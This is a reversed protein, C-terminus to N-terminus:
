LYLIVVAEIFILITIAGAARACRRRVREGGRRALGALALTAVAASALVGLSVLAFPKNGNIFLIALVAAAGLSGAWRGPAAGGSSWLEGAAAGALVAAPLAAPLWTTPELPLPAYGRLSTPAFNLAALALVFLAALSHAAGNRAGLYYAAAALGAVGAFGFGLPDWFLMAAADAGLRKVLMKTEPYVDPAAALAARVHAFPVGVRLYELAAAAVLVAAFGGLWLFARAGPGNKRPARAASWLLYFAALALYAVSFAVAVGAFLGAALRSSLKEDESSKLFFYLSAAAALAAYTERPFFTNAVVAAPLVAWIFSAAAAAWPGAVRAAVAGVLLVCAAGALLFDARPPVGLRWAYALRVAVALFVLAASAVLRYNKNV